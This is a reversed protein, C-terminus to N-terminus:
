LLRGRSETGLWIFGTRVRVVGKDLILQLLKQGRCTLPRRECSACLLQVTVPRMYSVPRQPRAILLVAAPGVVVGATRHPEQAKTSTGKESKIENGGKHPLATPRNVARQQGVRSLQAGQPSRTDEGAVWTVCKSLVRLRPSNRQMDDTTLPSAISSKGTTQYPGRFM